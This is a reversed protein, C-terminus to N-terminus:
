SHTCTKRVGNFTQLIFSWTSTV